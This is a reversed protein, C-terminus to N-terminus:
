AARRSRGRMAVRRHLALHRSLAEGPLYRERVRASWGRAAAPDQALEAIRAALSAARGFRFHRGTVEPEIKERMGGIDPCLVPVGARRAELMVMPSNEWWRSPVVMWDAERMLAGIEARAYRGHFRVGRGLRASLLALRARQTPPMRERGTGHVDLRVRARVPAPLRAMAELLLDIGKAASVRGFYALRLPEDSPRASDGEEAPAEDLLNEIVEIRAPDLGWDIYREALFRSPAVFRDVGAFHNKIWRERLLFDQPTRDRFCGACASAGSAHCLAGDRTRVMLGQNHCIAMYDHLTLLVAADPLRRRVEGILELGLGVYHHFHVIDPRVADLVDGFDRWVRADDTQSFLFRDHTANHFLIESAAGTGSFPTGGHVPFPTSARALFSSRFDPHADLARHLNHAAIEAGGPSSSPHGHAVVLTRIPASM